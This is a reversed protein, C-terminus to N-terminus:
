ANSLVGLAILAQEQLRLEEPSPSMAGSSPQRDPDGRGVSRADPEGTLDTLDVALRVEAALEHVLARREVADLQALISRVSVSTTDYAPFVVPGAEYVDADRVERREVGGSRSWTDGGDPVQFRFSMGRIAGGAIAQRVPEVTANDFLRARVFLGRGDERVDEFTGIPVAGVRPDRGHEFQLVPTRRGLSRSFAGHLITEEFDGKLDTIRAPHGFVAAYGELTRGDGGSRSEFDFARVCLGLARSRSDDSIEVGLREAAARIRAKIRKLQEATYMAANGAQHIYSWAARCHEATDLPYRKKNDPQYGPDAYPVDGYPKDQDARLEGSGSLARGKSTSRMTALRALLAPNVKGDPAVGLRRQAAKVAATTKPGLKGDVTLRKGDTLGLRNLADQLRRVRPDGGEVGYGTGTNSDPDYALTGSMAKKTAPGPRRELRATAKTPTSSKGGGALREAMRVGEPDSRETSPADDDVYEVLGEQDAADLVQRAADIFAEVDDTDMDDPDDPDAEYPPDLALRPKPDDDGWDPDNHAFRVIMVGNTYLEVLHENNAGAPLYDYVEPTVQEDEDLEDREERLLEVKEALDWLDYNSVDAEQGRGWRLNVDGSVHLGATLAGFTGEVQVGFLYREPDLGLDDLSVGAGGNGHDLQQHKGPLHRVERCVRASRETTGGLHKALLRLLKDAEGARAYLEAVQENDSLDDLTLGAPVAGLHVMVGTAPEDIDVRYHVDAWEGSAAGEAFIEYEWEPPDGLAELAAATEDWRADEEATFAHDPRSYAVKRLAAQVKELREREDWYADQRDQAVAGARLAGALTDRLRAATDADLRATYGSPLVDGTDVDEFEELKAEIAAKRAPDADPAADLADWEAELAQQEDRLRKRKVNVTATKDPGGRWPGADDDRGGFTSDGIGLRLFRKGDRETAALRVAGNSGTLKDSGVLREGPELEIRGALKLKDLKSVVDPIGHDNGHSDQNHKGLLHRPELGIARLATLTLADDPGM